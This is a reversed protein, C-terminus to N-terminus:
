GVVQGADNVDQALSNASRSGLDQLPGGTGSDYVFAHYWGNAPGYSYGVVLGATNSDLAFSDGGFSGLDRMTKGDYYFAHTQGAPTTAWGAIKGCSNIANGFSYGGGLTGLDHMAGDYFFAHATGDARGSWGTVHGCYNVALARAYAGGLTGLDVSTSGNYLFARPNGDAGGFSTGAVIGGNAIGKRTIDGYVDPIGLPIVDYTPGRYGDSVPLAPTPHADDGGGGGCAALLVTLTLAAIRPAAVTSQTYSTFM